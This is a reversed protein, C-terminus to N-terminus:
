QVSWCGDVVDRYPDLFGGYANAAPSMRTANLDVRHSILPHV